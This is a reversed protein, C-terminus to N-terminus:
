ALIKLGQKKLFTNKGELFSFISEFKKFYKLMSNM